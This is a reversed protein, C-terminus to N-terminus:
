CQELHPKLRIKKYGFGLFTTKRFREFQMGALSENSHM